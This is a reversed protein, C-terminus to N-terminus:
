NLCTRTSTFMDADGGGNVQADPNWYMTAGDPSLHLGIDDLPTSLEPVLVPTGFPAGLTDRHATYVDYGGPGGPRTSSFYVDLGDASLTPNQDEGTSGLEVVHQRPGFPQSRDVRTSVFLEDNTTANDFAGIWLVLGDASIWPSTEYSATNVNTVPQPASWADQATARTALYIDYQGAQNSSYVIELADETLSPDDETAASSLEAIIQPTGFSSLQDPRTAYWLDASQSPPRYSHFALVTQSLAPAPDWDDNGVSNIPGALKVPASWKDWQMCRAASGDAVPDFSVRGCGAIAVLVWARVCADYELGALKAAIAL